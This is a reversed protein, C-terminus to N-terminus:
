ARNKDSKVPSDLREKRIKDLITATKQYYEDTVVKNQNFLEQYKPILAEDYRYVMMDKVLPKTKNEKKRKAIWGLLREKKGEILKKYLDTELDYRPDILKHDILDVEEELQKMRLALYLEPLGEPAEELRKGCRLYNAVRVFPKWLYYVIIYGLVLFILLIFMPVNHAVAIRDIVSNNKSVELDSKDNVLDSFQAREDTTLISTNGYMWIGMILHIIAALPLMGRATAQVKDDLKPPTKYMRLILLKDIWYTLIFTLFAAVYLFPIGSSYMMCVYVATLIQAYRYEILFEPGTYLQEYEEQMMKKTRSPDRTCGRDLCRGVARYAYIAIAAMHPTFVNLYVTLIITVGVTKYWEVTFDDYEGAFLLNGVALSEETLDANIILIMLATNIFQSWFIKYFAASIQSSSSHHNEWLSLERLVVKLCFNILVVGCVAGFIIFQAYFKTTLYDECKKEGDPFQIDFADLKQKNWQDNCYCGLLGQKNDDAKLSDQYAAELTIELGNPCEIEPYKNRIDQEYDKTLIIAIVSLIVLVLAVLFTGVKRKNQQRPTSHLNEWLINTPEDAREAKMIKKDLPRHSKQKKDCQRVFCNEGFANICRGAAEECNFTVYAEIATNDPEKEANEREFKTQRRKEELKSIRKFIKREKKSLVEHDYSDGTVIALKKPNDKVKMKFKTKLYDRKKKLRGEKVKMETIKVQNSILKLDFVHLDEESVTAAYARPEQNIVHNLHAWLVPYLEQVSRDPLNRIRVSYDGATVETERLRTAEERDWTSLKIVLMIFILTAFADTCGVVFGIDSKKYDIDSMPEHVTEDKCLARVFVNSQSYSQLCNDPFLERTLSIKCERDELCPQFKSEILKQYSEDLNRYECEDIYQLDTAGTGCTSDTTGLGFKSLAAIKGYNCVVYLDNDGDATTGAAPLTGYRCVNEEAGLNGLTTSSLVDKYSVESDEGATIKGASLYFYVSPASLIMLCAFLSILFKIFKFYLVIGTGMEEFASRTGEASGGHWGTQTKCVPYPAMRVKGHHKFVRRPHTRNITDILKKFSIGNKMDDYEKVKVAADFQFRLAQEGERTHVISGADPERDEVAEESFITNIDETQRGNPVQDKKEEEEAAVDENVVAKGERQPFDEGLNEVEREVTPDVELKENVMKASNGDGQQVKRKKTTDIIAVKVSGDQSRAPVSKVGEGHYIIPHREDHDRGNAGNVDNVGGHETEKIDAANDDGDVNIAGVHESEKVDAVDGDSDVDQLSMDNSSGLDVDIDEDDVHDLQNASPHLFAGATNASRYEHTKSEEKHSDHPDSM